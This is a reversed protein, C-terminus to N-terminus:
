IRTADIRGFAFATGSFTGRCVLYVTQGGTPVNLYIVPMAYIVPTTTINYPWNMSIQGGDLSTTASTTSLGCIFPFLNTATGGKAGLKGTVRWLGCTLPLTTVNKYVTSTLAVASAFTVASSLYEGVFGLNPNSGPSKVEAPM